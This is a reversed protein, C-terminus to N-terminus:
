TAEPVYVIVTTTESSLPPVEVWVVVITTLPAGVAPAPPGYLPTSPAGTVSFPVAASGSASTRIIPQVEVITLASGPVLQLRVPALVRVGSSVHSSLARTSTVSVTASPTLGVTWSVALTVMSLATGATAAGATAGFGVVTPVGTASLAANVSGPTFSSWVAVTLQPSPGFWGPETLSTGPDPM